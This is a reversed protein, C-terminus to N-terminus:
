TIVEEWGYAGPEWVNADVTSVWTKGKHVVKDGKKYADHGGTPQKWPQAEPQPEPQPEPAPEDARRWGQPYASPAHVNNDITSVYVVGGEICCDGTMYPSTSLAVFPKAHAPDKSWIFGWQAPLEEPEGPYTDSDYVQLLKVVRGATSKCVFGVPRQLMNMTKKAAQFDPIKQAEGNLQTGDMSAAKGQLAQADARGQNYMADLRTKQDIM